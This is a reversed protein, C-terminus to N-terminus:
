PKCDPDYADRYPKNFCRLLSDLVKRNINEDSPDASYMEDRAAQLISRDHKLFAITGRVYANWKSKEDSKEAPNYSKEFRAIGLDNLDAMAYVQGAHWYIVRAQWPALTDLNHVHYADLVKGAEVKDVIARWGGNPLTQDFAVYDLKMLAQFESPDPAGPSAHCVAAIMFNFIQAFYKM